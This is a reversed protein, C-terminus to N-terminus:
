FNSYYLFETLRHKACYVTYSVEPSRCGPTGLVRACEEPVKRTVPYNDYYHYSEPSATKIKKASDFDGLQISPKNHSCQFLFVSPCDYDRFVLINTVPYSSLACTHIHTVRQSAHMSKIDGHMINREQLYKLAELIERIVYRVNDM